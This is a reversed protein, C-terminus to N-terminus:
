PRGSATRSSRRVAHEGALHVAPLPPQGVALAEGRDPVVQAARRGPLRHGPASGTTWSSWRPWCSIVSDSSKQSSRPRQSGGACSRSRRRTATSSSSAAASDRAAVEGTTGSGAFFDLVRDGPRRPRRCSAACSGERSRPRTAPRRRAPRRSSRTGGSTPRCSAARPRRRASSGRRWTPSATSRTTTSSTARRAHKVYVLITDHKAPWRDRARGGYDYAWIIENLFADRGFLEDLLVKM